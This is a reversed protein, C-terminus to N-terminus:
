IEYGTRGIIEQFRPKSRLPDYDADVTLQWAWVKIGPQNQDIRINCSHELWDLAMDNEGLALYIRAINWVTKYDGEDLVQELKTIAELASVRLGLLANIIGLNAIDAKNGRLEYAKEYATLAEELLGNRTAAWGLYMNIVADDPAIKVGEQAVELATEDDRNMLHIFALRTYSGNVRLPTVEIIRLYMDAAEDFRGAYLYAEGLTTYVELSLPDLEYAKEAEVLGEDFRGSRLLLFAYERHAETDNSDLSLAHQFTEEAGEWDEEYLYQMTAKAVHAAALDPDLELAKEMMSIALNRRGENSLGKYGVAFYLPIVLYAYAPAFTSDAAIAQELIATPVLFKNQSGEAMPQTYFRAELGQLFLAEAEQRAMDQHNSCGGSLIVLSLSMAPIRHKM